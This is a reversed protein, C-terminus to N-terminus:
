HVHQQSLHCKCCQLSEFGVVYDTEVIISFHVSYVIIGDNKYNGNTVNPSLSRVILPSSPEITSTHTVTIYHGM